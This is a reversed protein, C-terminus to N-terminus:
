ETFATPRPFLQIPCSLQGCRLTGSFPAYVDTCMTQFMDKVTDRTLTSDPFYVRGRDLNLEILENYLPLSRQLFHEDPSTVCMIHLSGPFKFPLPFPDESPTRIKKLAASLSSSGCGTSGDTILM